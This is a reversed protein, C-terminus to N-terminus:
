LHCHLAPEVSFQCFLFLGSFENNQSLDTFNIFCKRLKNTDKTIRSLGTAQRNFVLLKRNQQLHWKGASRDWRLASREWHASPMSKVFRFQLVSSVHSNINKQKSLTTGVWFRKKNKEKSIKSACLIFGAAVMRLTRMKKKMNRSVGCPTKTKVAATQQIHIPFM